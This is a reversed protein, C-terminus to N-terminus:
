RQSPSIAGSASTSVALRAIVLHYDGAYYLGSEAQRYNLPLPKPDFPCRVVEPDPAEPLLIPLNVNHFARSM